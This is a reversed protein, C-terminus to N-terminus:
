TLSPPHAAGELHHKIATLWEEMHGELLRALREEQRQHLRLAGEPDLFMFLRQVTRVLGGLMEDPLAERLMADSPEFSETQTLRTGDAQPETAVEIRFPVTSDSVSVIRRNPVFEEVRTRYDLIRQGSQMRFHCVSGVRLPGDTEIEASLTQQRPNLAARDAPNTMLSFVREIPADIHISRTVVVM